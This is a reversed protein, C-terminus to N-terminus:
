DSDGHSSVELSIARAYDDATNINFFLVDPQGYQAIEASGIEAITLEHDSGLLDTLRLQNAEIRRQLVSACRRSYTACLPEYGRTTKPIAIDVDRGTDILHTLFPASLFPMDCALVLTSAAGTSEIASYVGGLSGAGPALDRFVPVGYDKYPTDDNAVIVTRRVVLRLVALQRELIAASGLPLVAKNRGDFRKALGGALIAATCM